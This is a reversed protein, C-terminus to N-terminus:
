NTCYYLKAYPRTAPLAPPYNKGVAAPLGLLSERGTHGVALRPAHRQGWECGWAVCMRVGCLKDM